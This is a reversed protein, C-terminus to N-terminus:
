PIAAKHESRPAPEDPPTILVVGGDAMAPGVIAWEGRVREVRSAARRRWWASVERPLARWVDDDNSVRALLNSYAALRSEDLMYDPHTILLAMGGVQRLYALKDIWASGDPEGLIVFLTHDQVLTIPLEVLDRNFFPLWSCCGGRQPEYPDTDPYSSDYDFGLTPMMDWGRQTAPARFGVAGWAAAYRRIAPLRKRLTSPSELDRGDHRLGHVGVEFGQEALDHLLREDVRYREPVFNWSSRFGAREEIERMRHVSDQGDATEVDHTLVVAWTRGHPWTAIAPVPCGAVGALTELLYTHLEHRAPEIPWRPFTVGERVHGHMRRLGIQLSRPLLPRLRYYLYRAAADARAALASRESALYGESLYAVDLEDPDFPLLTSGDDARWVSAVPEGGRDVIATVPRWGEERASLVRGAEADPWVEGFIPISDLRYAGRPLMSRRRGGGRVWTLAPADHGSRWLRAFGPLAARPLPREAGSAIPVGLARLVQSDHTAEFV